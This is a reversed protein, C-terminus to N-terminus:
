RNYFVKWKQLLSSNDFYAQRSSVDIGYIADNAIELEIGYELYHIVALIQAQNLLDFQGSSVNKLVDEPCFTMSIGQNQLEEWLIDAILYQPLHFRMGKADFYSFASEYRECIDDFDIKQWDNKEDERCLALLTSKDERDDMGNGERLGIGEELTM